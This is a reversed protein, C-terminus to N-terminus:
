LSKFNKRIFRQRALNGGGATGRRFEVNEERLTGIGKNYLNKDSIKVLLILADNVSDDVKFDTFYKKSDLNKLYCDFNEKRKENNADLRKIQNLGIVANLEISKVLYLTWKRANTFRSGSVSKRGIIYLVAM